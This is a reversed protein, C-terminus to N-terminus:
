NRVKYYGDPIKNELEKVEVQIDQNTFLDKGTLVAPNLLVLAQGVQNTQPLVSVQFAVEKKPSLVGVSNKIKGINWVIQNSRENFTLQENDPYFKNTWRVGSPMSSVVAIDSVDNSVNAVKWRVTYTTAQGVIPPIPGTNAIDKDNYFVERELIIKSNLKLEIKNSSIIKNSGLPTPVDPSDIKATSVLTFNKESENNVPIIEYVPIEFDIEGRQGPNLVALEPVDSARWTITKKEADYAGSKLKLKSFDLVPSNIEMTIIANRLGVEGNNAYIIKYSLFQGANVNTNNQGNVTQSIFLPSSTIKTHAEKQSYAIFQGDSGPFGLSAKLTKEEDKLGNINGLITIKGTQNPSITGVYWVNNGDTAKPNASIFDFKEPYENKLSVNNFSRSSNNQYNIVYELSNGNAAELPAAVELAIPSTRVNVGLKNTSQFTSNFNSPIYNLTANLYVIYDKPGYFKGHIEVEGGSHAKITGLIIKSNTQNEIKLNPNEELQFNESYGLLIEANNLDVRNDNNYAIKYSILDTSDVSDAGKVSVIVKSENFASQKYKIIGVILGTIIILGFVVLAGIKIAKKRFSDEGNFTPEWKKEQQFEQTKGALNQTPDYQSAEHKRDSMDPNKEYLRRNLDDLSM